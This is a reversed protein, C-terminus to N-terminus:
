TEHARLHTYSVADGAASNAVTATGHSIFEDNNVTNYVWTNSFVGAFIGSYNSAYEADPFVDSYPSTSPTKSETVFMEDAQLGSFDLNNMGVDGVDVQMTTTDLYTVVTDGINLRSTFDSANINITQGSSVNALLAAGFILMLRFPLFRKM